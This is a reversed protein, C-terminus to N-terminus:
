ESDQRKASLPVLDGRLPLTKTNRTIEFIATLEFEPYDYSDKFDVLGYTIARVAAERKAQYWASIFFARERRSTSLKLVVRTEDPWGIKVQTLIKQPFVIISNDHTVGGMLHGVFTIPRRM